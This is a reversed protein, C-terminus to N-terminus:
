LKNPSPHNINIIVCLKRIVIVNVNYYLAIIYNVNCKVLDKSLRIVFLYNTYM